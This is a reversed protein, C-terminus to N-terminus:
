RVMIITGNPLVATGSWEGQTGPFSLALNFTGTGLGSGIVKWGFYGAADVLANTQTIGDVKAIVLQSETAAATAASWGADYPIVVNGSLKPWPTDKSATIVKTNGLAGKVVALQARQSEVVQNGSDYFTLTLDYVDETSPTNGSFVRWLYNSTEATFNTAFTSNM